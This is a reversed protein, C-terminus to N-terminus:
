VEVLMRIAEEKETEVDTTWAWKWNEMAAEGIEKVLRNADIRSTDSTDSDVSLHAHREDAAFEYLKGNERSRRQIDNGHRLRVAEYIKLARPISKRTTSPHTLLAALVYADEIAQGAGSGQHPTMAHAADGIVAVPGHSAIPIAKLTNIAWMSPGEICKVLQEVETEWGQFENAVDEHTRQQVTKGEWVTGEMEPKSVFGVFNVLKGLSVPFAIIHKNKGMYNVSGYLTRHNPNLERLKESPILSRYAVTGSWVPDKVGARSLEKVLEDKGAAQADNEALKIMTQRTASHIGDAGVLVDCTVTSGDRFHLLVSGDEELTYNLLRKSFETTITEHELHHALATQFEIRHMTINGVLVFTM